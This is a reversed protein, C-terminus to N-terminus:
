IATTHQLRPDVRLFRSLHPALSSDTNKVHVVASIISTNDPKRNAFQLTM